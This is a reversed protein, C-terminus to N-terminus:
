EGWLTRYRLRETSDMLSEDRKWTELRRGVADWLATEINYLPRKRTVHSAVDRKLHNNANKECLVKLM